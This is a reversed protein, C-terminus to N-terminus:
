EKERGHAPISVTVAFAETRKALALLAVAAQLPVVGNGTCRLREMRNALGHSIRCVAPEVEPFEELIKKWEGREGEGRGPPWLPLSTGFSAACSLGEDRWSELGECQAPGLALDAWPAREEPGSRRNIRAKRPRQSETAGVQGGREDPPAIRKRGAPEPRGQGRGRAPSPAVEERQRIGQAEALLFFRKGEMSDGVDGASLCLWEADFGLSALGSLVEGLASGKPKGATFIGPVNELFVWRPGVEGVVRKVLPWLWREDDQAERKGACSVPQCPFGASIFDVKGRYLGGPFSELDDWVPAPDLDATEMRAVLCAAAYADRECYGVTKHPRGLAELALQVGLELGGVGACLALGNV